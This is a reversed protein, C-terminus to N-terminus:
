CEGSRVRQGLRFQITLDAAAQRKAEPPSALFEEHERADTLRMAEIYLEKVSMAM